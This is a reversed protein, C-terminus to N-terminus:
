LTLLHLVEASIERGTGPKICIPFPPAPETTLLVPQEELPRSNLEWGGRPLECSDTVVTGPPGQCGCVSMCAPSVSIDMFLCIFLYM